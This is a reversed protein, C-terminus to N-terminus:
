FFLLSDKLVKYFYNIKLIGTIEDFENKIVPHNIKKEECINIADCVSTSEYLYVVPSSMILYAPNDLHLDLSLVRNQIDSGTIIGINDKNNKTLLLCDTKRKTLVSIAENITADS